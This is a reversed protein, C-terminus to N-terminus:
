YIHGSRADVFFEAIREAERYRRLINPRPRANM